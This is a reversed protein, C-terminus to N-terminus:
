FIEIRRPPCFKRKERREGPRANRENRTENRRSVVPNTEERPPCIRSGKRLDGLRANRENQTKLTEKRKSVVPNIKERPPCIRRRETIYGLHANRENRTRERKTENRGESADRLCVKDRPPSSRRRTKPGIWYPLRKKRERREEQALLSLTLITGYSAGIRLTSRIKLGTLNLCSGSFTDAYVIWVYTARKQCYIKFSSNFTYKRFNCFSCDFFTYGETSGPHTMDDKTARLWLQRKKKM